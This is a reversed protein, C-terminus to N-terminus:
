IIYHSQLVLRVHATSDFYLVNKESFPMIKFFFRALKVVGAMRPTHTVHSVAGQSRWQSLTLSKRSMSGAM